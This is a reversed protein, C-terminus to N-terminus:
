LIVNVSLPGLAHTRQIDRRLVGLPIYFAAGLALLSILIPDPLNLFRTIFHRLLFLLAAIAIGAIWARQHLRAFVAAKDEALAHNAVYKACVVQFSLTIASMLM